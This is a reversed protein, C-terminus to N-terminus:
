WKAGRPQKTLHLGRCIPCRYAHIKIGVRRTESKAVARAKKWTPYMKKLDCNRERAGPM